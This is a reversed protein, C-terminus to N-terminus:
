LLSAGHIDAQQRSFRFATQCTGHSPQARHTVITNQTHAPTLASAILSCQVKTHESKKAIKNNRQKKKRQMKRKRKSSRLVKVKAAACDLVMCLDLMTMREGHWYAVCALAWRGRQSANMGELEAEVAASHKRPAITVPPADGTAGIAEEGGKVAPAPPDPPQELALPQAGLLELLSQKRFSAHIHAVVASDPPTIVSHQFLSTAQASFWLM